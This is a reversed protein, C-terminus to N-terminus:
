HGCVPAQAVRNIQGDQRSGREVKEKKWGYERERDPIVPVPDRQKGKQDGADNCALKCLARAAFRLDRSATLALRFPQVLETLLHQHRSVDDVQDISQRLHDGCREVKGASCEIKAFSVADVAGARVVHVDCRRLQPVRRESAVVLVVFFAIDSQNGYEESRTGDSRNADRAISRRGLRKISDAAERRDSDLAGARHLRQRSHLCRTLTFAQAVCQKVGHRM